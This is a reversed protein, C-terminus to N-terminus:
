LYAAEIEIIGKVLSKGGKVTTGMSGGEKIYEAKSSDEQALKEM